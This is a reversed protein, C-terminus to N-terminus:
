MNSELEEQLWDNNQAIWANLFPRLAEPLPVWREERERELQGPKQRDALVEVDKIDIDEFWPYRNGVDPEAPCYEGEVRGRATIEGGIEWNDEGVKGTPMQLYFEFEIDKAAM